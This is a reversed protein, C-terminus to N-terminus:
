VGIGVMLSPSTLLIISLEHLVVSVQAKNNRLFKRLKGQYSIKETM